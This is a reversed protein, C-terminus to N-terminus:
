DREHEHEHEREREHEGRRLNRKDQQMDKRLGHIKQNYERAEAKDGERIEEHRRQRLQELQQQDQRLDQRQNRIDRRDNDDAFGRASPIVLSAALLGIGVLTKSKNMNGEKARSPRLCRVLRWPGFLAPSGFDFCASPLLYGEVIKSKRM